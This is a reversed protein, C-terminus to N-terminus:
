IMLFKLCFLACIYILYVNLSNHNIIQSIKYNQNKPVTLNKCLLTMPPFDTIKVDGPIYNLFIAAFQFPMFHFESINTSHAFSSFCLQSYLKEMKGRRQFVYSSNKAVQKIENRMNIIARSSRM